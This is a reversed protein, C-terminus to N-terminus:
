PKNIEDSEKNIRTYEYTISQSLMFALFIYVVIDYYQNMKRFDTNKNSKLNRNKDGTILTKTKDTKSKLNRNKDGTILTKTKDTKTKDTKPSIILPHHRYFQSKIKPVNVRNQVSFPEMTQGLIHRHKHQRRQFIRMQFLRGLGGNRLPNLFSRGNKLPNQYQSVSISSFMHRTYYTNM